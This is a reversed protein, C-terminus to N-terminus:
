PHLGYVKHFSLRDFRMKLWKRALRNDMPVQDIPIKLFSKALEIALSHFYEASYSQYVEYLFNWLSNHLDDTMGDIQVIKKPEFGMRRSFSDM